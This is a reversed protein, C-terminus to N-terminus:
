AAGKNAAGKFSFCSTQLACQPRFQRQDACAITVNALSSPKPDLCMHCPCLRPTFNCRVRIQSWRCIEFVYRGNKELAWEMALCYRARMQHFPVSVYLVAHRRATHFQAFSYRLADFRESHQLQAITIDGQSRPLGHSVMRQWYKVFRKKLLTMIHKEHRHNQQATSTGMRSSQEKLSQPSQMEGVGACRQSGGLCGREPVIDARLGRPSDRPRLSCQKKSISATHQKQSLPNLFKAVEM